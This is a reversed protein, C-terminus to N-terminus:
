NILSGTIVKGSTDLEKKKDRLETKLLEKETDLKKISEDQARAVIVRM